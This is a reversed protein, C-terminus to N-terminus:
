VLTAAALGLRRRTAQLTNFLLCARTMPGVGKPVPTIAGAVQRAEDFDVDGLLRSRGDPLATRNIGVDIVVAGPKIWDGKVFRAKGIAAVVIDARRCHGELDRTRSHAVTVTCDERLLLRAMPRGVIASRGIVLADLGALDPRAEKLLMLCGLPTGPVPFDMIDGRNATGLRGVNIPHFGDVDKAPDIAEIVAASSIHAPLPLQVLIGHVGPDRNLEAILDLLREQPTDDPLRHDFGQMGAAAADRGKSRVYIESAPDNGVLVVALGPVVGHSAKLAAVDRGVRERLALAAAEGDIIRGETRLNDRM